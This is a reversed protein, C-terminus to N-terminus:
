KPRIDDGMFSLIGFSGNGMYILEVSDFPGGSLSGLPGATTALPTTGYLYIGSGPAFFAGAVIRTLDSSAALRGLGAISNTPRWTRGGDSSLYVGSGTLGVIRTADATM